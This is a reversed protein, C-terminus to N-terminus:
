LKYAQVNQYSIRAARSDAPSVYATNLTATSYNALDAAFGGCYSPTEMNWVAELGEVVTVILNGAADMWTRSTAVMTEKGTTVNFIWFIGDRALDPMEEPKGM